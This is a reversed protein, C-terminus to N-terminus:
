MIIILCNVEGVVIQDKCISDTRGLTIENLLTQHVGNECNLVFCIKKLLNPFMQNHFCKIDNTNLLIKIKIKVYTQHKPDVIQTEDGLIEWSVM